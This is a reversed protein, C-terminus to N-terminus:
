DEHPTPAAPAPPPTAVDGLREIRPPVAVEGMTPACIKGMATTTTAPDTVANPDNPALTSVDGCAALLGATATLAWRAFRVLKPSEAQSPLTDLFVPAGSADYEMRMCVRSSSNNVLERAQAATLQTADHVHLSCESCFRKSGSGTLESWSKPCPTQIRLPVEPHESPLTM